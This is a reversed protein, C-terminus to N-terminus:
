RSTAEGPWPWTTPPSAHQWRAVFVSRLQLAWAPLRRSASAVTMSNLYVSEGFTGDSLSMVLGNDILANLSYDVGFSLTSVPM